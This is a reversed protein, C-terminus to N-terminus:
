WGRVTALSPIRHFTSDVEVTIFRRAHSSLYEAPRLGAPYFSGEWGAATFASAGLRIEANAEM